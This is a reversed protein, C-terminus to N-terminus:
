NWQNLCALAVLGVLQLEGMYIYIELHDPSHQMTVVQCFPMDEAEGSSGAGLLVLIAVCVSSWDSCAVM